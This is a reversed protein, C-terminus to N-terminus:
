CVSACSTSASQVTRASAASSCGHVGDSVRTSATSARIADDHHRREELGHTYQKFRQGVPRERHRSVEEYQQQWREVDEPTFEDALSLSSTLLLAVAILYKM